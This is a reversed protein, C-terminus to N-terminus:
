EWAFPSILPVFVCDCIKKEVIGTKSKTFLMLEQKEKNGVPIIMRGNIKLYPWLHELKNPSAATVVIVDFFMQGKKLTLLGDGIFFRVNDCYLDDLKKKASMSLSKVREVSYVVACMEALIATQYGSGTGIEYVVDNKKLSLSATMLATMYPQSITQGESIALPRDEYSFDRLEKPVFEHRPMQSLVHLVSADSIGRKRIQEEIMQARAKTFDM